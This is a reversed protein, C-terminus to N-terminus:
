AVKHNWPQRSLYMFLHENERDPDKDDEPAARAKMLYQLRSKSLWQNYQCYLHRKFRQYRHRKHHKHTLTYEIVRDPSNGNDGMRHHSIMMM